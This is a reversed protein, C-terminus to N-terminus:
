ISHAILPQWKSHNKTTAQKHQELTAKTKNHTAQKDTFLLFHAMSWRGTLCDTGRGMVGLIVACLSTECWACWQSCSLLRSEFAHLSLAVNEGVRIWLTRFYTRSKWSENRTKICMEWRSDVMNWLNVALCFLSHPIPAVTTPTPLMIFTLLIRNLNGSVFICYKSGWRM